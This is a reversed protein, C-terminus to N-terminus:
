GRKLLGAAVLVVGALMTLGVSVLGGTVIIEHLPAGEFGAGSIPTMKSTGLIGALSIFTWNAFGGYLLLWFATAELKGSLRVHSWAAGVAILFTGNMVGELHSSLGMRPNKFAPIAFGTILGLVFLM